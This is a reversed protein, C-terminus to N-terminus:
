AARTAERGLLTLLSARADSPELGRPEYVHRALFYGTLRFADAVEAATPTHPSGADSLFAPLPLLRDKYSEGAARSVARGTKPSVYVLDDPTGTAACRTLDLGFGLDDLLKLEFRVIVEGATLADDLHDLVGSLAEYLHPHSDREPLLRLLGALAQIGYLGAPSEILKAARQATPEVTYHGLHEDLRARWTATVGNGPQLIPQQRRSRGGRVLGLHRGHAQTMLEVILSTEGHRRTGLIIGEDTWQM